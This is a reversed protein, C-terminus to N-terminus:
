TFNFQPNNLSFNFTHDNELKKSDEKDKNSDEEEKSSDEDEEKLRVYPLEHDSQEPFIDPIKVNCNKKEEIFIQKTKINNVELDKKSSVKINKKSEEIKINELEREIHEEKLKIIKEESQGENLSFIILPVMKFPFTIPWFFSSLLNHYWDKQCGYVVSEMEDNFYIKNKRYNTLEKKGNFYISYVNYYIIGGIYMGYGLNQLKM